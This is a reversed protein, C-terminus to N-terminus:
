MLLPCYCSPTKPVMEANAKLCLSVLFFRHQPPRDCSRGPYQSKDLMRCSFYYVCLLVIYMHLCPLVCLTIVCYVFSWSCKAATCMPCAVCHPSLVGVNQGCLTSSRTTLDMVTQLQSTSNKHTPPQFELRKRATLLTLYAYRKPM